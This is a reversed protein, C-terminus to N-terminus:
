QRLHPRTPPKYPHTRIPHRTPRGTTRITPSPTPVATPDATPAHPDACGASYGFCPVCNEHGWKESTSYGVPCRTCPAQGDRGFYGDACLDCSKKGYADNTVGVPCATCDPEKGGASYYGPRCYGYSAFAETCVSFSGSALQAFLVKPLCPLPNNSLRLSGL